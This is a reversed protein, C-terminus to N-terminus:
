CANRLGCPDTIGQLAAASKTNHLHWEISLDLPMQRKRHALPVSPTIDGVDGMNGMNGMNDVSEARLRALHSRRGSRYVGRAAGCQQRDLESCQDAVMKRGICQWAHGICLRACRKTSACCQDHAVTCPHQEVFLGFATQTRRQRPCSTLAIHTGQRDDSLRRRANQSTTRRQELYRDSHPLRLTTREHRGVM